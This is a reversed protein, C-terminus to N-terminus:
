PLCATKVWFDQISKAVDTLDDLNEPKVVYRNVHKQYSKLIDKESSSTTFMIVPIHKTKDDNKITDLVEYGDMLPMNIDLLILDPDLCDKNVVIKHLYLLAEYGNKAITLSHSFNAEEFAHQMLMIDGESDDIHLINIPRMQLYLKDLLTILFNTM